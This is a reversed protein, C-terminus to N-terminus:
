PPSNVRRCAHCRASPASKVSGSRLSCIAWRVALPTPTIVSWIATRKPLSAARFRIAPQAIARCCATATASFKSATTATLAAAKPIPSANIRKCLRRNQVRRWNSPRMRPSKRRTSCTLIRHTSRWCSKIRLAQTLILHPIARLTWRPRCRVPLPMRASTPRHRAVKAIRTIFRSGWHAMATLNLMKWKAM